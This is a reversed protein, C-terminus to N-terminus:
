RSKNGENDNNIKSKIIVYRDTVTHAKEIIEKEIRVPKTIM